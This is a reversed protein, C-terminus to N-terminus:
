ANVSASAKPDLSLTSYTASYLPFDFVMDHKLDIVANFKRLELIVVRYKRCYHHLYKPLSYLIWDLYLLFEPYLEFGVKMNCVDLGVFTTIRM